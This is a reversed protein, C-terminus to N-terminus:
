LVCHASANSGSLILVSNPFFVRVGKSPWFANRRKETQGLLLGKKSNSEFVRTAARHECRRCHGLGGKQFLIVAFSKVPVSGITGQRMAPFM